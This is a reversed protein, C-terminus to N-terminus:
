LPRAAAKRAADLLAVSDAGLKADALGFRRLVDKRLADEAADPGLARMAAAFAAKLEALPIQGAPRRSRYSPGPVRYVDWAAPDAGVPWYVRRRMQTTTPITAPVAKRIIKAKEETAIKWGWEELVRSFLLEEVIPGEAAVIRLIQPELYKAAWKEKFNSQARSYSTDIDAPHYTREFPDAANKAADIAASLAAGGGAEGGGAVADVDIEPVPPPEGKAAADLAAALKEEAKRRDFWWEMCWCRVMRWGLGQLVGRRSEDRDRATAAQRYMEGDCEVGLVFTGGDGPKKVGIDIRYASRGVRYEVEFGRSEVFAAVERM